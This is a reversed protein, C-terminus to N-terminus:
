KVIWTAGVRHAVVVNMAGLAHRVQAAAHDHRSVWISGPGSTKGRSPWQFDTWYTHRPMYDTEVMLRTGAGGSPAVHEPVRLTEVALSTIESAVGDHGNRFEVQFPCM